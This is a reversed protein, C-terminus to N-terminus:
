PQRMGGFRYALTFNFVMGDAEYIGARPGEPIVAGARDPQKIYQGSADFSLANSLKYGLGLSWYNREGEPLFPTARPSAAENWRFGARVMLENTAQYEAGFRLTNADSYGLTLTDPTSTEFNVPFADFSSWYTRQYDLALGLRSTPRHSVGVVLMAPFDIQTSVGQDAPFQAGIAGDVLPNNTLVQTFDADGDMEINAQGLYRAALWTKPELRLMAGVHYTWGTGDGALNVDAIETNGLGLAAPGFQRRNVEISGMVYDVGAGVLFRDPVVQFAVTPQIYLGKFQNDYGTFRGEFNPGDCRPEDAPCVDWKLGLGYPALAAIGVATRDNLRYNLYAQPVLKIEPDRDFSTEGSAPIMGPDYRFTNSSRVVALGVNVASPSMAMAAPSFFVASGDDCPLAVGASVRGSMCASQQDVSSGQAHLPTGVAVCAAVAASAIALSRRM